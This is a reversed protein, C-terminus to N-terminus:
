AQLKEEWTKRILALKREVTALSCARKEGKEEQKRKLIEKIEENTHGAMKLEAIEREGDDLRGLLRRYEEAVQAAVAPDPERGLFEGVDESDASRTRRWDRKRRGEHEVLDCVKRSAILVLLQWLDDSDDLRPFRGQEAGRCFSDFASLAM